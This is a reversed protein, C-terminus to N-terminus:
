VIKSIKNNPNHVLKITTFFSRRRDASTSCVHCCLLTRFRGDFFVEDVRHGKSTSLCSFSILVQLFFIVLLVYAYSSVLGRYPDNIKRQKAWHKVLWAMHAARNDIQLYARLLKSNLVALRNNLGIDCHLGSSPDSFKVIPVRANPLVLLVDFGAKELVSALAEIM